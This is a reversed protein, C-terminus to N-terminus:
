FIRKMKRAKTTKDQWDEFEQQNSIPIFGLMEIELGQINTYIEIDEFRSTKNIITIKPKENM